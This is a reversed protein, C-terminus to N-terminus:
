DNIPRGDKVWARHERRVESPKVDFVKATRVASVTDVRKEERAEDNSRSERKAM